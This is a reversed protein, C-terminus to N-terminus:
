TFWKSRFFKLSPIQDVSLDNVQDKMKKRSGPTTQFITEPSNWIASSCHVHLIHGEMVPLVNTVLMYFKGRLVSPNVNTTPHNASTRSIKERLNQLKQM